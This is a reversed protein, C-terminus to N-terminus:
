DLYNRLGLIENDNECSGIDQSIHFWFVGKCEIGRCGIGELVRRTVPELTKLSCNRLIFKQEVSNTSCTGGM